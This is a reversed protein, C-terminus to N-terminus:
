TNENNVSFLSPTLKIGRTAKGFIYKRSVPHFGAKKRVKLILM